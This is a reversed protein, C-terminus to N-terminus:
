YYKTFTELESFYINTVLEEDVASMKLLNWLLALNKYNYDQLRTIKKERYAYIPIQGVLNLMVHLWTLHDKPSSITSIVTSFAKRSLVGWSCYHNSWDELKIYTPSFFPIDNLRSHEVRDCKRETRPAVCTLSEPSSAHVCSTSPM